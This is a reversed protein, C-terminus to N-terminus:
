TTEPKRRGKIGPTGLKTGPLSNDTESVYCVKSTEHTQFLIQKM